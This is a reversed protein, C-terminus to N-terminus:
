HGTGLAHFGAVCADNRDSTDYTELWILAELSVVSL